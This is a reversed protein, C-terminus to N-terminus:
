NTSDHGGSGDDFYLTHYIRAFEVIKKVYTRTEGYDIGDVATVVATQNSNRFWRRANGLGANYASLMMVVDGNTRSLLHSAYWIGFTLNIEPVFLSEHSGQPYGLRGAVQDSTAPMLQMLGMAGASSVANLDFHSEQRMMAYIVHPPVGKSSCNEFIVGPYPVPHALVKFHDDLSRREDEPLSYYVRQFARVSRWHMAFDDYLVGLELWYRAPLKYRTEVVRLEVEGWDRFGMELFQRGRELNVASHALKGTPLPLDDLASRVAEYARERKHFVMKLFELLGREGYLDVRGNSGIIPQSFSPEIDPGLYFSMEDLDQLEAFVGESLEREGKRDYAIALYYLLEENRRRSRDVALSLVRVAEEHEGREIHYDALKMTATRGHRSSPYTDTVKGLLELAREHDGIREFLSAAVILAEAAKADYPYKEAFVVYETASKLPQGTKRFIRARLLTAKRELSEDEFPEQLLAYSKNYHRKQYYFDARLISLEQAQSPELQRTALESAIESTAGLRRNRVLTAGIDLLADDSLSDIAVREIVMEAVTRAQKRTRRDHLLEVARDVAGISDGTEFRLEVERILISAVSSSQSRRERVLDIFQLAREYSESGIYAELLWEEFGPTLSSPVGLALREEGVAVAEEYRKALVLCEVAVYDRYPDFAPFSLTDIMAVFSLARDLDGALLNLRARRLCLKYFESPNNPLTQSALISDAKAARGMEIMLRAELRVSNNDTGDDESRHRLVDYSLKTEGFHALLKANQVPDSLDISHGRLSQPVPHALLELM